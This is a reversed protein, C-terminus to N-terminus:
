QSIKGRYWGSVGKKKVIYGEPTQCVLSLSDGPLVQLNYDTFDTTYTIEEALSGIYENYIRIRRGSSIHECLSFHEGRELIKIKNDLWKIYIPNESASQADLATVTQLNDAYISTICTDDCDLEPIILLNLQGDHKIGCGGDISIIRKERNIIPNAQAIGEGYLTVPWHGVIVYKDFVRSVSMFNDFKLVDFVDRDKLSDLDASPLGGHVFIHKQTEVVAPLSRLFNYEPGFHRTIQEKSALVEAPSNLSIGLEDAVDDFLSTGKWERMRLLYKYFRESTDPSLSDLMSLRWADVNGILAIVNDRESLEMVRRLALLSDPGKEVIDGVIFLYDRECFGARCLLNDLLDPHGHIDSTVLIRRGPELDLKKIKIPM